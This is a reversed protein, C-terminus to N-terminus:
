QTIEKVNKTARSFVTNLVPLTPELSYAVVHIRQPYISCTFMLLLVYARCCVQLFVDHDTSKPRLKVEFPDLLRKGKGLMERPLGIKHLSPHCRSADIRVRDVMRFADTPVKYSRKTPKHLMSCIGTSGM